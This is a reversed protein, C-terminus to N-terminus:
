RPAVKADLVTDIRAGEPGAVKRKMIIRRDSRM